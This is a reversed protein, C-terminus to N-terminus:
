YGFDELCNNFPKITTKGPYCDTSTGFSVLLIPRGAHLNDKFYQTATAAILCLEVM